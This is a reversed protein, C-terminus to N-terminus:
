FAFIQHCHTVHDSIESPTLDTFIQNIGFGKLAKYKPLDKKTDGIFIVIINETINSAALIFDLAEETHSNQHIIVCIKATLSSM